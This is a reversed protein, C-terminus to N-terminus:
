ENSRSDDISSEDKSDVQVANYINSGVNSSSDDLNLMM